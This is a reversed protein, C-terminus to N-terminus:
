WEAVTDPAKGDHLLWILEHDAISYFSLEDLIVIDHWDRTEQTCLMTLFFRSM